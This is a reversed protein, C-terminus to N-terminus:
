GGQMNINQLIRCGRRHWCAVLPWKVMDLPEMPEDYEWLDLSYLKYMPVCVLQSSNIDHSCYFDLGESM